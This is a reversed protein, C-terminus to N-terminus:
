YFFMGSEEFTTGVDIEIEKSDIVSTMPKKAIQYLSGEAHFNLITNKVHTVGTSFDPLLINKGVIACEDFSDGGDVYQCFLTM